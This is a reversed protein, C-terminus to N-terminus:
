VSEYPPFCMWPGTGGPNPCQQVGPGHVSPPAVGPGFIHTEAREPKVGYSSKLALASRHLYLFLVTPTRRLVVAPVESFQFSVCFLHCDRILPRPLRLRNRPRNSM